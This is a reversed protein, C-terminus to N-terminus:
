KTKGGEYLKIIQEKWAEVWSFGKNYKRSLVYNDVIEVIYPNDPDYMHFTGDAMDLFGNNYRMYFKNRLPHDKKLKTFRFIAGHSLSTIFLYNKEKKAM